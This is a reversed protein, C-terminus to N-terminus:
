TGWDRLYLFDYGVTRNSLKAIIPLMRKFQNRRIQEIVKAVFAPEFDLYDLRHVPDIRAAFTRQGIAQFRLRQFVIWCRTDQQTGEPTQRARDRDLFAATPMAAAILAHQGIDEKGSGHGIGPLARCIVNMASQSDQWPDGRILGERGALWYNDGVQHCELYKVWM